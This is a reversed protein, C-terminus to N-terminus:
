VSFDIKGIKESFTGDPTYTLYISKDKYHKELDSKVNSEINALGTEINQMTEILGKVIPKIAPINELYQFLVNFIFNILFSWLFKISIYSGDKNKEITSITKKLEKLLNDNDIEESSIIKKLIKILEIFLEDLKQDKKYREFLFDFNIGETDEYAKNFSYQSIIKSIKELDRIYPLHTKLNNVTTRIYKNTINILERLWDPLDNDTFFSSLDQAQKQINKIANKKDSLNEGTLIDLVLKIKTNLNTKTENIKNFYVQLSKDM